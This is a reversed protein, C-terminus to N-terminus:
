ILTLDSEKISSFQVMKSRSDWAVVYRRENDVIKVNEEYNSWCDWIRGKLKNNSIVKVKDNINFPRMKKDKIM